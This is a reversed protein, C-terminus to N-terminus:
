QAVAVAVVLIAIVAAGWIADRWRQARLLGAVVLFVTLAPLLVLLWLGLSMARLGATQAASAVQRAALAAPGPLGLPATSSALFLVFGGIMLVLAPIAVIVATRRIVIALRRGTTQWPSRLRSHRLDRSPIM